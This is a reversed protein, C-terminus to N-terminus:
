GRAARSPFRRPALLTLADPLWAIRAPARGGPDGDFQVPAGDDGGLVVDRAARIEVGGLSQMRGAALAAAARLHALRGPARMLVVQLGPRDLGAGPALVYPGGYHRANAVIAAAVRLKEGDVEIDHLRPRRRALEHLAFLAYGLRGLRRKLGPPMGAVVEADLGIGAMLLFRRGDAVGLGARYSRGAAVLGAIAEPERPWGLECALVNATGAPVLGMPLAAGALGNAAEALTGDGGAVLLAACGGAEHARAAERAMAEADGRAATARLRAAIGRRGLAAAVARAKAAAGGGAAPNFVIEVVGM